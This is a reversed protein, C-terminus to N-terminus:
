RSMYMLPPQNNDFQFSSDGLRSRAGARYLTRYYLQVIYTCALIILVVGTAVVIFARLFSFASMGEDLGFVSKSKDKIPRLPTTTYNRKYVWEKGLVRGWYVKGIENWREDTFLGYSNYVDIPVDNFYIWAGSRQRINSEYCRRILQIINEAKPKTKFENYFSTSFVNIADNINLKDIEAKIFPNTNYLLQKLDNFRFLNYNKNTDFFDIEEEVIEFNQEDHIILYKVKSSLEKRTASMFNNVLTIGYSADGDISIMKCENRTFKDVATESSMRHIHGHINKYEMKAHEKDETFTNEINAKDNNKTLNMKIVDNLSRSLPSHSFVINLQEDYNVIDFMVSNINDYVFTQIFRKDWYPSKWNDNYYDRIATPYCEHNGRLFFIRNKYKDISMIFKIIMYVYLNSEGRDIYDGLFVIKRYRNENKLFRCLPYLLQNLDGHIDGVVIVKNNSNLRFM